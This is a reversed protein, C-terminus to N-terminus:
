DKHSDEKLEWGMREALDKAFAVDKHPVFLKIQERTGYHPGKPEMLM